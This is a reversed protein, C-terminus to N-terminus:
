QGTRHGNRVVRAWVPEERGALVLQQRQWSCGRASGFGPGPGAGAPPVRRDGGDHGDATGDGGTVVGTGVAFLRAVSVVIPSSADARMRLIRLSM